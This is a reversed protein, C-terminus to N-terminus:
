YDAPSRGKARIEAAREFIEERTIGAAEYMAFVNELPTEPPVSHSAALIYGGGDSTMAEVLRQTTRLVERATGRPLLEQTDVGGMFSLRGGFERKLELPDMGPCNCQIPNLVDLGMEVLDPIIPRISGCSHYAVWLGRSKGVAFIAALHPKILRRWLAPSIIMARQGGVDDGTWLWDLRFRDCAGEALHVAFRGANEILRGALEQDAAVDTLTQEMGRIRFLLELLCPSIDCGIFHESGSSVVSEMASLLEETRAYPFEYEEVAAQTAHALPSGSVQNFRGQRVWRIGWADTHTGGEHEHVIGEMAHNNGVWTQRIDDGLADSVRSPDIDLAAALRATIDPHFWM